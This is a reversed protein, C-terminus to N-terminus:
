PMDNLQEGPQTHEKIWQDLHGNSSMLPSSEGDVTCWAACKTVYCKSGSGRTWRRIQVRHGNVNVVGHEATPDITPHESTDTM